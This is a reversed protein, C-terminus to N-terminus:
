TTLVQACPETRQVFASPSSCNLQAHLAAIATGRQLKTKQKEFTQMQADEKEDKEVFLSLSDENSRANREYRLEDTLRTTEKKYNTIRQMAAKQESGSLDYVAV